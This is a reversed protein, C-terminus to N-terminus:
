NNQQWKGTLTIKNLVPSDFDYLEDNLYWGIFTYGDLIPDEPKEAKEGKKVRQAAISTGAKSDFIVDYTGFCTKYIILGIITFVLLGGILYYKKNM